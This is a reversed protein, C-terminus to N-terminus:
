LLATIAYNNYPRVTDTELMPEPIPHRNAPHLNVSGEETVMQLHLRINGEKDKCM